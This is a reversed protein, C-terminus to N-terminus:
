FQEQRGRENNCLFGANNCKKLIEQKLNISAILNILIIMKLYEVLTNLFTLNGCFIIKM